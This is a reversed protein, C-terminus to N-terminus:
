KMKRQSSPSVVTSFKFSLLVTKFKDLWNDEFFNPIGAPPIPSYVLDQTHYVSYLFGKLYPLLHSHYEKINAFSKIPDPM